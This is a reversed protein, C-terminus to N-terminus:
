QAVELNFPKGDIETLAENVHDVGLQLDELWMVYLGPLSSGSVCYYGPGRRLREERKAKQLAANIRTHVSM